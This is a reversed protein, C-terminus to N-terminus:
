EAISVDALGESAVFLYGTTSTREKIDMTSITKLQRDFTRRSSPIKVLGGPIALKHNYQCDMILFTHLGNNSDIRFWIRVVFCRLIVAPPSYVYPRGRNRRPAVPRPICGILYLINFLNSEKM